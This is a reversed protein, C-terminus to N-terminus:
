YVPTFLAYSTARTVLPIQVWNLQTSSSAGLWLWWMGTTPHTIWDWRDNFVSINGSSEMTMFDPGNPVPNEAFQSMVWTVLPSLTRSTASNAVSHHFKDDM